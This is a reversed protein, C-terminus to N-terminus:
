LEIILKYTEVSYDARTIDAINNYYLPVINKQYIAGANTINIDSIYVNSQTVIGEGNVFSTDGTMAIHSTNSITVYGIANSQQGIIVTGPTIATATPTLLDAQLLQTFTNAQYINAGKSGDVNLEHPNEIISVKNYVLNSTPLTNSENGNFVISFAIGRMDLEVAPDSGHGGPPPVICYM